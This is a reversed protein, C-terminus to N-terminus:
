YFIPKYLSPKAQMAFFIFNNIFNQDQRYQCIILVLDDNSLRSFVEQNYQMFAQFKDQVHDSSFRSADFIITNFNRICFDNDYHLGLQYREEDSLLRPLDPHAFILDAFFRSERAFEFLSLHISALRAQITERFDQHSAHQCIINIMDENSLEQLIFETKFVLDAAEVHKLAEDNIHNVIRRKENANKAPFALANLKVKELPSFEQYLKPLFILRRSFSKDESQDELVINLLTMKFQYLDTKALLQDILNENDQHRELQTLKELTTLQPYASLIFSPDHEYQSLIAQKDERFLLLIFAPESFVITAISQDALAFYALHTKCQYDKNQYLTKKIEKIFGDNAIHSAIIEFRQQESIGVSYISKSLITIADNADDKAAQVRIEVPSFRTWKLPNKISSFM